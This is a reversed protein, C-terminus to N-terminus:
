ERESGVLVKIWTRVVGYTQNGKASSRRIGSKLRGWFGLLIGTVRRHSRVIQEKLTSSYVYFHEFVSRRGLEPRWDEWGDKMKKRRKKQPDSFQVRRSESGIFVEDRQSRRETGFFLCFSLLLCFKRDGRMSSLDFGPHSLGWPYQQLM